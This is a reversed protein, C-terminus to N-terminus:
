AISVGYIIGQYSPRLCVLDGFLCVDIIYQYGTTGRVEFYEIGDPSKRKRFFGNSYFKWGRWDLLMIIDDDMEQVGVFKLEQNTVSGIKIETWGYQSAKRSDPVVNFAGKSAEVVKMVYGLNTLSMTIDTPRGKGYLRTKTFADFIKEVINASTIDSGDVNIAQLYVYNAKTQGYLSSSGGNAASLLADRMASFGGAGSPQFGDNYIKAAVVLDKGGASFDVVTSGGRTTVVIITKTNINIGGSAKVYATVVTADSTVFVVKQGAVFRDPRDVVIAGTNANAVATTKAFHAGNMLGVSTVNKMYDMFDEVSDPLMKLFNQESVKDHEMLDRHNFIMSGWIEPMSTISGRVFADEAIDNSASLGGSAISSAGAAKFPVILNGGKWNEDKEVNQLVYDRKILEEKLLENPLYENLMTSFSRTTGM